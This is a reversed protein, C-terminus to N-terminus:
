RHDETRVAKGSLLGEYGKLVGGVRIVGRGTIEYERLQKSHDSGRVKVVTMARTLVGDLEIYRQMIIADTLFAIGNPSFHLDTFSDSLEVTSLVTVGVSTLAGVMRYLSERFDERFTPALALELGSLSDIVARKAGIRAVADRIALLAEDISLDLPRLYIIELQKKAILQEFEHGHPTTQMYDNPRKEFVAIIGPEGLRAGELIFENSLVTKGSGSPGAILASYGRPLGGGLMEDLPPIGTTVRHALVNDTTSLEEPKLLRPFVVLGDSTIRITHLGPIQGQGRMKVVQLKRVISNREVSQRLFIIGDAITFVPNGQEHAEYEGLLFTTAECTTLNMALRQVFDQMELDNTQVTAQRALARFSDVVVIAPNIRSVEAAIRELVHGLGGSRAEDGLHLFQVANGVKSADFFSYQQQYRLMKLPPEGILGIHLAPREVTGNAFAIQAGLTTKGCGPAGVILNFSLQPVGGGLVEDLGPVGTGLTLIRVKDHGPGNM